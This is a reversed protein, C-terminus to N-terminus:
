FADTFPGYFVTGDEEYGMMTTTDFTAGFWATTKYFNEIGKSWSLPIEDTTDGNGNMDEDRFGELVAYLEDATTPAEMGLQEIWTANIWYRDRICM